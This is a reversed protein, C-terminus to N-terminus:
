KKTLNIRRRINFSSLKILEFVVIDVFFVFHLIGGFGLFRNPWEEELTIVIACKILTGHFFFQKQVLIRGSILTHCCEILKNQM